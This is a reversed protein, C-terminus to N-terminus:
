YDDPFAADQVDGPPLPVRPAVGEEELPRNAVNGLRGEDEVAEDRNLDVVEVSPTGTSSCTLKVEFARAGSFIVAQLLHLAGAVVLSVVDVDLQLPGVLERRRRRGAPKPMVIAPGCLGAPMYGFIM